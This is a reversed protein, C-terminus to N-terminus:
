FRGSRVAGWPPRGGRTGCNTSCKWPLCPTVVDLRTGAEKSAGPVEPASQPRGPRTRWKSRRAGPGVTVGARYKALAGLLVPVQTSPLIEALETEGEILFARMYRM